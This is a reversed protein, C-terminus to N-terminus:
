SRRLGRAFNRGAPETLYYVYGDQMRDHVVVKRKM